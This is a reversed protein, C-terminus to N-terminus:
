GLHRLFIVVAKGEDGIASCVPERNGDANALVMSRLKRGTVRVDNVLVGQPEACGCDAGASTPELSVDVGSSTEALCLRHLSRLAGAQAAVSTVHSGVHFGSVAHAAALLM